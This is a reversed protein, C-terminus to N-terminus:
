SEKVTENMWRIVEKEEQSIKLVVFWVIGGPVKGAAEAAAKVKNRNAWSASPHAPILTRHRM